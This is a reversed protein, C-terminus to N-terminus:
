ATKTQTAVRPQNRRNAEILKRYEGVMEHAVETWAFERIMWERGRRGMEALPLGSLHDIAEALQVPDNGAWLGCGVEEVRGWPTGHGAIVPVGRALAELVVTCFAEKFSPAVCLDAKQFHQEKVAADVQGHFIVRDTLGLSQVLARLRVEYEPEGAGCISL